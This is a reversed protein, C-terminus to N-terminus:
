CGPGEEKERTEIKELEGILKRLAPLHKPQFRLSLSDHDGFRPCYLGVLGDGYVVVNMGWGTDGFEIETHVIKRTEV